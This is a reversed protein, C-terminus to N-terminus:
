LTECGNNVINIIESEYGRNRLATKARVLEEDGGLGFVYAGSGTM